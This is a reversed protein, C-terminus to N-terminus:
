KYEQSKSNQQLFFTSSESLSKSSVPDLYSHIKDILEILVESFIGKASDHQSSKIKPKIAVYERIEESRRENMKELSTVDDQIAREIKILFKPLDDFIDRMVELHLNMKLSGYSGTRTAKQYENYYRDRTEKFKSKFSVFADFAIIHESYKPHILLIDSLIPPKFECDGRLSINYEHVATRFARGLRQQIEDPMIPFVLLYINEVLSLLDKHFDSSEDLFLERCDLNKNIIEIINNLM